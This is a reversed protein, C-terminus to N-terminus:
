MEGFPYSSERVYIGYISIGKERFICMFMVFMEKALNLVSWYNLSLGPMESLVAKTRENESQQLIYLLTCIRGNQIKYTCARVCPKIGYESVMLKEPRPFHFISDIKKWKTNNYSPLNKLNSVRADTERPVKYIYPEYLHDCLRRRQRYHSASRGVTFSGYLHILANRMSVHIDAQRSCHWDLLRSSTNRVSKM